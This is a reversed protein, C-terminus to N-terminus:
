QPELALCYAQFPDLTLRLRQLEIRRWTSRGDEQWIVGTLLERLRYTTADLQWQDVPLSLTVTQKYPSVNLLGIVYTTDLTRVVAFVQPSDCWVVNYLVDGYRLVPYDRRVRFLTTLIREEGQEQGAWLAPIFGCLVMGTLLMRSIRSGRLGDVLPNVDCTDHKETFCIRTMGPPLIHMYDSLYTGLEAPSIRNLALHVFMHHVLYDYCADHLETYLPGALGCLLASSSKIQRMNQRLRRLLPLLGLNAASAHHAPNGTWNLTTSAPAIIRFGDIDYRQVQTLAWNHLYDQLETNKWDFSYYDMFRLPTGPCQTTSFDGTEDKIFWDPHELVYRSGAACGQVAFDILVRMQLNHATTVLDCLDDATGLMPDLVDLDRIAYPSGSASWNGDWLRRGPNAFSWIPLLVLTNIGLTALRPLERALEVFGGHLAPHTEYIVADKVWAAQDDPARVGILEWTQQFTKRAEIWPEPRLLLYQTGGTLREEPALWGALGVEHGISVTPTSLPPDGPTGDMFPVASEVDSFYWCLLTEPSSTDTQGDTHLALLGPGYSPAPEFVRGQNLGPTFFRRPRVDHRQEAAIDLAVHPRVSNGPSEFYCPEREGVRVHPILMRLGYIRIHQTDVNQISIRRAVLDDTIRYCDYLKLLGLGISITMEIAGDHEQCQHTLYRAFFRSSLWRDPGNLAVDVATQPPGYRMIGSATLRRLGQLAGDERSWVLELVATRVTILRLTEQLTFVSVNLKTEVQANPLVYM